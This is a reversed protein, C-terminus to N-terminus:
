KPPLPRYLDEPTLRCGFLLIPHIGFVDHVTFIVGMSLQDSCEGNELKGLVEVSTELLDAMEQQSLGYHKRLLTVNHIFNQEQRKIAEKIDM